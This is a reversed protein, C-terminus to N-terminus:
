KFERLKMWEQFEAEMEPDTFKGDTMIELISNMLGEALGRLDPRQRCMVGIVEM